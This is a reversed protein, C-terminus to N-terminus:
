IWIYKVRVARRLLDRPTYAAMGWGWVADMGDHAALADYGGTIVNVVGPPVEANDLAAYFRATDHTPAAAVIVRNGMALAPAVLTVCVSLAAGEPYAVGIVGRAEYVALASAPADITFTDAWAAYRRLCEVAQTDDIQEALAHLLRAPDAVSAARAAALAKDIDRSGPEIHRGDIYHMPSAETGQTSPKLIPAEAPRLYVSLVEYSTDFPAAARNIYVTSVRVQKAMDLAAGINESWLGIRGGSPALAAAEAPSRFTQAALVPGADPSLDPVDTLLTPPFFQGADPLANAPQWCVAGTRTASAVLRELTDRQAAGGVAGLDTCLDLPDGIRLAALRARLKAFFREAIGEQVLLGAGGKCAAEAACEAASDLDADELVIYVVGTDSRKARHDIDPHTAADAGTIVNLVGSPLKSTQALEAIALALLEAGDPPMLVVTNGLALAPATQPLGVACVGLPSTNGPEEAMRQAWAAYYAFRRATRDITARAARIPLGSEISVLRALREAQAEVRRALAYLHAARIQGPTDRWAAFADRAAHVAKDLDGGDAQATQAITPGGAPNVKNVYAAGAPPVWENNIFLDFKGAHAKAWAYVPEASVSVPGYSMSETPETNM